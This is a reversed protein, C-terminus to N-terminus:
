TEEKAQDSNGIKVGEFVHSRPGVVGIRIGDEREVIVLTANEGVDAVEYTTTQASTDEAGSIKEASM